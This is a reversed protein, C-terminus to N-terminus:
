GPDSALRGQRIQRSLDQLARSTAVAVRDSTAPEGRAEGLGVRWVKPGDPGREFMTRLFAFDVYSCRSQMQVLDNILTAIRDHADSVM